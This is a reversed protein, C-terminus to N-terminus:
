NRNPDRLIYTEGATVDNLDIQKLGKEKLAKKVSDVSLQGERQGAAQLVRSVSAAPGLTGTVAKADANAPDTWGQVDIPTIEFDTKPISKESSSQNSYPASSEISNAIYPTFVNNYSEKTTADSNNESIESM